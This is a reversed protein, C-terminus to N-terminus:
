TNKLYSLNSVFLSGWLLKIEWQICFTRKFNCCDSIWFFTHVAHKVTPRCGHYYEDNIAYTFTNSTHADHNVNATILLWWWKLKIDIKNWFGYFRMAILAFLRNYNKKHRRYTFLDDWLLFFFWILFLLSLHALLCHVYILFILLLIHFTLILYEDFARTHTSLYIIVFQKCTVLQSAELKRLHHKQGFFLKKQQDYILLVKKSWVIKTPM